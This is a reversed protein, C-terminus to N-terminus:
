PKLVGALSGPDGSLPKAEGHLIKMVEARVTDYSPEGVYYAYTAVVDPGGPKADVMDLHFLQKDPPLIATNEWTETTDEDTRLLLGHDPDERPDGFNWQYRVFDSGQRTFYDVGAIARRGVPVRDRIFDGSARIAPDIATQIALKVRAIAEDRRALDNQAQTIQALLEWAALYNGSLKVLREVRGRAADLNGLQLNIQGSLFLANQDEPQKTLLAEVQALAETAHGASFTDIAQDLPDPADAARSPASVALGILPVALFIAALISRMAFLTGPAKSEVM